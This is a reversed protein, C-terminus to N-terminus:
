AGDDRLEAVGDEGRERLGGDGLEAEVAVGRDQGRLAGASGGLVLDDARQQLVADVPQAQDGAQM